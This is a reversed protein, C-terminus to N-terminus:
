NSMVTTLQVLSGARDAPVSKLGLIQLDNAIFLYSGLELGGLIPLTSSTNDDQEDILTTDNTDNQQISSLTLLSLSAVIYYTASFVFGPVPPQLEYLYRVVPCYTGWSLNEDDSAATSAHVVISTTQRHSKTIPQPLRRRAATTSILSVPFLRATKTHFPGHSSSSHLTPPIFASAMVCSSTPRWSLSLIALSLLLCHWPSRRRERMVALPFCCHSNYFCHIHCYMMDKTILSKSRSRQTPSLVKVKM